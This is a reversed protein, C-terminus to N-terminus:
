IKNALSKLKDALLSDGLQDALNILRDATQISLKRPKKILPKPQSKVQVKVTISTVKCVRYFPDTKQLNQLETLLSASMLKIKTAVSANHAYITLQGNNLSGAFSSQSLMKPAIAEWFQRLNLHANAQKALSSFQSDPSENFLANIKRM